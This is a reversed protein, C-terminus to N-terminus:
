LLSPVRLDALAGVGVCARGWVAAAQTFYWKVYVGGGSVLEAGNSTPIYLVKGWLLPPVSEPNRYILQLTTM